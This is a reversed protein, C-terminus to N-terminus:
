YRNVRDFFVTSTMVFIKLDLWLSWNEIYDLDYALRARGGELSDVQGSLRNVQAWGTIGPKVSHRDLYTPLAEFYLREGAKMMVAHPRPGVLSMHGALVNFLQPLEDISWRRLFRGLRTVRLDGPVTRCAGLRDGQDAYMTRFKIVPIVLNHRGLRPQVFFVPGRSTLRILAAVLLLLPALIALLFAAGVRDIIGKVPLQARRAASIEVAPGAQSAETDVLSVSGDLAIMRALAVESYCGAPLPLAVILRDIQSTGMLRAVRAIKRDWDPAGPEVIPVLLSSPRHWAQIRKLASPTGIIAPAHSTAARYRAQLLWNWVTGSHAPARAPASPAPFFTTVNRTSGIPPDPWSKASLPM